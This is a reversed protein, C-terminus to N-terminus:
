SARALPPGTWGLSEKNPDPFYLFHDVLAECFSQLEHTEEASLPEDRQNVHPAIIDAHGPFVHPSDVVAKAGADLVASVLGTALGHYEAARVAAVAMEKCYDDGRFAQQVVSVEDSEAPPRFASPRLRTRKANLHSPTKVFRVLTQDRPLSEQGETPSVSEEADVDERGTEAPPPVAPAVSVKAGAADRDAEAPYQEAPM